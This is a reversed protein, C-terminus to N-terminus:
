VGEDGAAEDTEGPVGTKGEYTDGSAPDRHFGTGPRAADDPPPCTADQDRCPEARGPAPRRPVHPDPLPDRKSRGENQENTM